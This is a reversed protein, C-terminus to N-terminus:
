PTVGNLDRNEIERYRHQVNAGHLETYGVWGVYRELKVAAITESLSAGATYRERVATDLARLYALTGDILETGGVAGHGPVVQRLPLARLAELAAIWGDLQGDRLNPVRTNEVLAGAFLVGSATDFVALDGPTAAWAPHILRLLRGIRADDISADIPNLATAIRTGRMSDEGVTAILTRLCQECRSQLLSATERQALLPTGAAEFAGAGLVYEPLAQTLVV